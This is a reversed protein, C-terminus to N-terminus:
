RSLARGILVGCGIGIGLSYGPHARMWQGIDRGLAKADSEQLYRGARAVSDTAGHTTESLGSAAQEMTRGVTSKADDAYSAAQSAAERAKERAKEGMEGGVDSLKALPNKETTEM